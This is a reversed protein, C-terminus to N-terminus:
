QQITYSFVPDGSPLRITSLRDHPQSKDIYITSAKLKMYDINEVFSYRGFQKVHKFGEDTIPYYTVEQRFRSPDYKTYFLYYIYPFDKPGVMVIKHSPYKKSLLVAERFGYRWFRVRQFNMHIFYLDLFLIFHLLMVGLFGVAALQGLSKKQQLYKLIHYFGYSSILVFVPLLIFLRTTNPTDRTLASPIPALFLWALLLPISKEKYWFLCIFGVFLLLADIIYLNGIGEINHQLKEGGRDFLFTPSFTNLYNISLQYLGAAYKNHLHVTLKSENSKDGRFKEAREYIVDVDNFISLTSAKNGGSNMNVALSTIIFSFLLVGAFFIGRQMKLRGRYIFFIVILFLPTFIIFSHYTFLTLGLLFSGLLIHWTQKSQSNVYLLLLFFGALFFAMALNVEYAARSFHISWPSISLLLASFLAVSQKKFIQLSILYIFLVTVVGAIASPFRVAFETLGFVAIPVTTIMPYSPLKWDGFSELALPFLKGHEDAGTRLLSYANYGIAVEDQNLSAPIAGLEYVRIFFSLSLILILLIKIMM